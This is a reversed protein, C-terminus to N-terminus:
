AYDPNWGIFSDEIFDKLFWNIKVEKADGFDIIYINNEYLIFNYSTIDLYHIDYYYLNKIIIKIKNWITLPIDKFDDGYLEYLSKGNIYEMMYIIKNDEIFYDIIKPCGADKFLNSIKSVQSYMLSEVKKHIHYENDAKIKDDINFIKVFIKNDDTLYINKTKSLRNASKNYKKIFINNDM